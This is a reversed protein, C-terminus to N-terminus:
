IYEDYNLMSSDIIPIATIDEELDAVAALIEDELARLTQSVDAAESNSDRMQIRMSMYETLYREAVDPLQSHTSANSGFVLWCPTELIDVTTTTTPPFILQGTTSDYSIVQLETALQNGDIDVISVYDVYGNTLDDETEDSPSDLVVGLITSTSASAVPGTQLAGSIGVAVFGFNNAGVKVLSATTGQLTWTLGDESSRVTNQVYNCAFFIGAAYSVFIAEGTTGFTGPLVETWSAGRNVSIYVNGNSSSCLYTGNHTAVKQLQLGAPLGYSSQLTWTIGDPSTAVKSSSGVIIFQQDTDSWTCGSAASTGFQSTTSTWTVGANTSYSLIGSLGCAIWTGTGNSCVDEWTIGGVPVTQLTYTSGDSSTSIKNLDGVIVWTGNSYYISNCVTTGFGTTILSWSVGNTTSIAGKGTGGVTVFLQGNSAIGLIYDSGFQSTRSTWAGTSLTPQSLVSSIKGRRIDLTPLLYQYNLRFGNTSSQQPYPSIIMEGQRLFYSDPFGPASVEQRATRLSLPAYNRADGNPSYDIKTINHKLFIDDPLTYVAQNAVADIYGVKQYLSSHEQLLLNYIRMQADNAYRVFERQRIGQTSSYQQNGTQDRSDRVLLDLRKM